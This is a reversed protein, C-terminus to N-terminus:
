FPNYKNESTDEPEPTPLAEPEEAEIAYRSRIDELNLTNQETNPTVVVQQENTYGFNNNGLYIGAVPNIKGNVMYDEWMANNVLFAQELLQRCEEPIPSHIRYTKTVIDKLAHRDIGLALALSTNSTKMDHEALLNWYDIIRQRLAEPDRISIKPWTALRINKELFATNDGPDLKTKKPDYGPRELIRDIEIPPDPTNRARNRAAENRTKQRMKEYGEPYKRPRGRKKKEQTDAM